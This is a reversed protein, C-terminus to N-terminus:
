AGSKGERGGIPKRQEDYKRLADYMDAVSDMPTADQALQGGSVEGLANMDLAEGADADLAGEDHQGKVETNRGEPKENSASM